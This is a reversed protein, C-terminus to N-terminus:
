NQDNEFLFIFEIFLVILRYDFILEVRSTNYEDSLIVFWGGRGEVGWILFENSRYQCPVDHSQKWINM